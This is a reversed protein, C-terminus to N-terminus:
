GGRREESRHVTLAHFVLCDGPELDLCLVQHRDLEAGFDPITEWHKEDEAFTYLERGSTLRPRFWRQWRHSGRLFRKWNRHM